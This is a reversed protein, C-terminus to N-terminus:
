RPPTRERSLRLMLSELNPPRIRIEKLPLGMAELREGLTSVDAFGHESHATWTTAPEGAVFGERQLASRTTEDLRAESLEVVIEKRHGFAARLLADPHGDLVPRGALMFVVRSALAQVQEFDHSVLVITVGDAHLDRLTDHIAHRAEVDVGVTPEDLLLLRPAHLLAAAINTRRQYGGSLTHLRENARAALHTRELVRAVASAVGAAAVGALRAFVALNERVTLHPYLAIQQPVFGINARASAVTRPNDGFVRLTGAALDIRGCLAGILTTKGAGNPGVLALLEGARVKLDVRDLAPVAGYAYSAGRLEIVDDALLRPASAAAAVESM